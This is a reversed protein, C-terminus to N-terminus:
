KGRHAAPDSDRRDLYRVCLARDPCTMAAWPEAPRAFDARAMIEALLPTLPDGAALIVEYREQALPVFDLDFFAAAAQIGLGADARGEAVAAAVAGHTQEERDYGSVASADIGAQQLMQGLLRHTGSGRQRNVIRVGPRALDSM